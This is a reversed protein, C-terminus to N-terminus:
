LDEWKWIVIKNRRTEEFDIMDQSSSFSIKIGNKDYLLCYRCVYTPIYIDYVYEGDWIYRYVEMGVFDDNNDTTILSDIKVKLWIPTDKEYNFPQTSNEEQCCVIAFFIFASLIIIKFM